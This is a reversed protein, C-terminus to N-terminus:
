PQYLVVIRSQLSELAPALHLRKKAHDDLTQREVVDNALIRLEGRGGFGLPEPRCGHFNLSIRRLLSLEEILESDLQM